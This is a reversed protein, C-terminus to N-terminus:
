KYLIPLMGICAFIGPSQFDRRYFRLGGVRVLNLRRLCAKNTYGWAELRHAIQLKPISGVPYPKSISKLLSRIFMNVM